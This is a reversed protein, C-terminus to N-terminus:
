SMSSALKLLPEFGDYFADAAAKLEERAQQPHEDRMGVVFAGGEKASRAAMAVDEFVVCGTLAVGLRKATEQYVVPTSKGKDTVEDCVVITDFLDLAGNNALAEELLRRDLSSAIAVPYGLSKLTAVFEKACPKLFVESSYSEEAIGYWEAILSEVTEDLGFRELLWKATGEFGLAAIIESDEKTFDLGRRRAFEMDVEHWVWMSDALTGDFDFIFAEPSSSGTM